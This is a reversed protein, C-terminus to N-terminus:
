EEFFSKVEIFATGKEAIFRPFASNPFVVKTKSQLHYCSISFTTNITSSIHTLSSLSPDSKHGSHGHTAVAGVREPVTRFVFM